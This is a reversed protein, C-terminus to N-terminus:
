NVQCNMVVKKNQNRKTTLMYYTQDHNESHNNLQSMVSFAMHEEM